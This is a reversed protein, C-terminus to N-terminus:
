RSKRNLRRFAEYARMGPTLPKGEFAVRWRKSPSDFRVTAPDFRDPDFKGGVWHLQDAHDPHDPDRIAALFREYGMVGGVDEPPCANAGALCVPYKKGLERPVVQELRIEHTWGDGFDYEYECVEHTGPKFYRAIKREWGPHHEPDGEFRDEDPIGILDIAGTSPNVIRFVHLHYDLWGLCDTIAVHLDWFSYTDPVQIRRWVAPKIDKLTILFQFVRKPALKTRTGGRGTQILGIM